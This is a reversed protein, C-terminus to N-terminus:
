FMHRLLDKLPFTIPFYLGISLVIIGDISKDIVSIRYSRLIENKVLIGVTSERVKESRCVQFWDNDKLIGKLM